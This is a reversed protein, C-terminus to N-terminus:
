RDTLRLEIRRSRAYADTTDGPGFPQFEGFGTAALRDAPVGFSILLKVVTIARAASLEWNSAFYGGRNVPVPDTHGDVRLLWRVDSPIEAAIEKITIALPTMQAVGAQTLEASGVPFLVESQFVFRDGVVQIGTRNQLVTRLRGFFESRYQQLEEVKNVLAANLKQGLDAIATDKERGTQQELELGRAIASLQARLEEIQRNLLAVEARASEGLRTQEALATEATVRRDREQNARALLERAQRELEDRLAALARAQETLRALDALRAEITEKDAKVTRDLDAIQRQMEEQRQRAAALETLTRALEAKAADLDRASLDARRATEALRDRLPTLEAIQRLLAEQRQRAAALETLIRALEAKAADLDRASLDARRSTEALRDRLPTLEAIQRQLAELTARAAALEVTLEDRTATLRTEVVATDRQAAEARATAAALRGQLPELDAIRRNAADVQQDATALRERLAATERASADLKGIAEALQAQLRENAVVAAQFALTADAVSGTLRDRDQTLSAARDRLAALQQALTARAAASGDLDTKLRTVSGQLAEARTQEMSLANRLETLERRASELAQNRGSLAASLFGQALVFVLLVFIIVMLLTSLADVYGPWADLGNGGNRRIRMAM